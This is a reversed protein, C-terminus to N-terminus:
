HHKYVSQGLAQPSPQTIWGSQLSGDPSAGYDRDYVHDYAHTDSRHAAGGPAAQESQAYSLMPVMVASALLAAVLKKM